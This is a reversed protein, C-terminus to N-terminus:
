KKMMEKMKEPTLSILKVYDAIADSVIVTLAKQDSAIKKVTDIVYKRFEGKRAFNEYVNLDFWENAHNSLENYVEGAVQIKQQITAKGGSQKDAIASYWCVLNKTVPNLEEPSAAKFNPLKSVREQYVWSAKPEVKNGKTFTASREKLGIQKATEYAAEQADSLSVGEAQYLAEVEVQMEKEYQKYLNNIKKDNDIQPGFKGGKGSRFVDSLVNGYIYKLVAGGPTKNLVETGYVSKKEGTDPDVYELEGFTDGTEDSIEALASIDQIANAATIVLKAVEVDQSSEFEDKKDDIYDELVDMVPESLTLVSDDIVSFIAVAPSDDSLDEDGTAKLKRDIVFTVYDRAVASAPTSQDSKYLELAVAIASDMSKSDKVTAIDQIDSEIEEEEEEQEDNRSILAFQSDVYSATKNLTDAILISFTKQHNGKGSMFTLSESEGLAKTIKNIASQRKREDTIDQPILLKKYISFEVSDVAIDAMITDIMIQRLKKTEDGVKIEEEPDPKRSVFVRRDKFYLPNTESNGRKIISGFARDIRKEIFDVASEPANRTSAYREINSAVVFCVMELFNEDTLEEGFSNRAAVAGTKLLESFLKMSSSLSGAPGSKFQLIFAYTKPIWFNADASKKGLRYIVEDNLNIRNTLIPSWVSEETSQSEDESGGFGYKGVAVQTGIQRSVDRMSDFTVQAVISIPDEHGLSPKGEKVAKITDSSIKDWYNSRRDQTIEKNNLNINEISALMTDAQDDTINPLSADDKDDGRDDIQLKTQVNKVTTDKKPSPLTALKGTTGDASLIEEARTKIDDEIQLPDVLTTDLGYVDASNMIDDVADNMDFMPDDNLEIALDDIKSKYFDMTESLLNILGERTERLPTDHRDLASDLLKHLERYFYEAQDSPVEQSIRSAAAKLEPISGPVYDPDEVPPANISLQVSMQPVPEIPGANLDNMHVFNGTPNNFTRNERLARKLLNFLVETKVKVEM